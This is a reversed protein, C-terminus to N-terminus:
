EGKERFSQLRQEGFTAVLLNVVYVETKKITLSVYTVNAVDIFMILNRKNADFRATLNDKCNAYLLSSVISM